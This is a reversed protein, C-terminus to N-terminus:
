SSQEPYQLIICTVQCSLHTIACSLTVDWAKMGDPEIDLVAWPLDMIEQLRIVKACTIYSALTPSKDLCYCAIKENLQEFQIYAAM